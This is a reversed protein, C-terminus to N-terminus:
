VPWISGLFPNVLLARGFTGPENHGPYLMTDRGLVAQLRGLSDRMQTESGGPFDMRGISDVFLTDGTFAFGPGLLCIGGPTHGPTHMVKLVVEGVQVEDDEALLRNPVLPALSMGMMMALSTDPRKLMVADREGILLEAGTAEVVATNAAVHDVHGHTNIVYRVEARRGEGRAKRGSEDESQSGAERKQSRGEGPEKQGSGGETQSRAELKQSRVEDGRRMEEITDVIIDADGGPDIVALENGSRLIYCNTGLPGVMLREIRESM